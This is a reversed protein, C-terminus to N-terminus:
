SLVLSTAVTADIFEEDTLKTEQLKYINRFM